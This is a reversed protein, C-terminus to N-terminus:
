ACTALVGPSWLDHGDPRSEVATGGVATGGVFPGGVFPGGVVALRELEVTVVCRRAGAHRVVNTIAERLVWAAVSRHRPDLVAARLGGVTARVEALAQRTLVEIDVLEARARAPDLDILREALEAKVSVVTLSHGLVDHVDRAVRDREATVTLEDRVRDHDAGRDVMMRGAGTGLGVAVVIFMVFIWDTSPDIITPLAITTVAVAAAWWWNLPHPLVFMGYAVLFPMFSLVGLGIAPVAAAVVVVLVALIWVAPRAAIPGAGFMGLFGFVYVVAFIATAVLGGVVRAPTDGDLSELVPFVLFILWAGWLMWGYRQAPDAPSSTSM